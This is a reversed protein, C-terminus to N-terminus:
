FQLHYLPLKNPNFRGAALSQNSYSSFLIAGMSLIDYQLAPYQEGVMLEFRPTVSHHLNSPLVHVGIHMSLLLDTLKARHVAIGFFLM